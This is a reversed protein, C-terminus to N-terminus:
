REKRMLKGCDKDKEINENGMLGNVKKGRKESERV